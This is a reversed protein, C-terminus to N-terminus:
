SEDNMESNNNQAIQAFFLTFITNFLQQCQQQAQSDQEQITSQQLQHQQQQQQQQLQHHHHQQQLQQLQQQLQLQQDLTPSVTVTNSRGTDTHMLQRPLNGAIDAPPSVAVLHSQDLAVAAQMQHIRSHLQVTHQRKLHGEHSQQQHDNLQPQSQRRLPLVGAPSPHSPERPSGVYLPKQQQSWPRWVMDAPPSGMYQDQGNNSHNFSSSQSQLHCYDNALNSGKHHQQHAADLDPPQGDPRLTHPLRRTDPPAAAFPAARLGLPGSGILQAPGASNPTASASSCARAEEPQSKIQPLQGLPQPQQARLHALSHPQSQPHPHSNSHASQAQAHLQNQQNHQHQNHLQLQLASSEGGLQQACLTKERKKRALRAM